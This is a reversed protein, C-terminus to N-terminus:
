RALIRLTVISQRWLCIVQFDVHMDIQFRSSAEIAIQLILGQLINQSFTHTTTCKYMYATLKSKLLTTAHISCTKRRGSCLMLMQNPDVVVPPNSM